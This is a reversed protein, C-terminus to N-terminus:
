RENVFDFASREIGITSGSEPRMEHIRVKSFTRDDPHANRYAELRERLEAESYPGSDAGDIMLAYDSM